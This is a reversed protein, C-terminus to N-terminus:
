LEFRVSPDAFDHLHVVTGQADALVVGYQAPEHSGPIRATDGLTLAVQHSTDLVSM